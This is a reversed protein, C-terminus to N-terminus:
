CCKARRGKLEAQERIFRGYAAKSSAMAERQLFRTYASEDFVERLVSVLTRQLEGLASGVRYRRDKM